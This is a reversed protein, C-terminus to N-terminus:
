PLRLSYASLLFSRHAASSRHRVRSPLSHCGCAWNDLAELTVSERGDAAPRHSVGDLGCAAGMPQGATVDCDVIDRLDGALAEPRREREERCERMGVSHEGVDAYPATHGLASGRTNYAAGPDGSARANVRDRVSLVYQLDRLVRREGSNCWGHWSNIASHTPATGRCRRCLAERRVSAAPKPQKAHLFRRSLAAILHSAKSPVHIEAEFHIPFM